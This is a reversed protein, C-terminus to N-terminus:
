IPLDLWQRHFDFSVAGPLRRFARRVSKCTANADFHQELGVSGRSGCACVNGKFGARAGGPVGVRKTLREDNGGTDSPNLTLAPEHFFDLGAINDPKRWAFLM